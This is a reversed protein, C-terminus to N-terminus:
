KLFKFLKDPTQINLKKIRCIRKTYQVCTLGPFHTNPYFSDNHKIFIWGYQKLIHLDRPKISIQEQKFMNVFQYIICKDKTIVVPACHRYKKCLVQTYLKHSQVSFGIYVM